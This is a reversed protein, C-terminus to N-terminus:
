SSVEEPVDNLRVIIDTGSGLQSKIELTADIAEVRERMIRMGLTSESIGATDFGQGNDTIRLEVQGPICSLTVEAQSARSHKVVNNLAEQAIRYLALKAEVSLQCEMVDIKVTILTRSSVALALQSLLDSLRANVLASPRLEMLLTRMEALAGRTLQRIEQLHQRGEDQDRNWLIPLVEAILSVSFLTQSVADHLERALRGREHTVAREAAEQLILGEVKKRATRDIGICLVEETSDDKTFPQYAAWEIWLPQGSAQWGESEWSDYPGPPQDQTVEAIGELLKGFAPDTESVITGFISKGIIESAHYGFVREAYTNWLTIEGQRNVMIIICPIHDFLSYYKDKIDNLEDEAQQRHAVEQELLTRMERIQAEYQEVFDEKRPSIRRPQSSMSVASKTKKRGTARVVSVPKKNQTM